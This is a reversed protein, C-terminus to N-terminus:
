GLYLKNLRQPDLGVDPKYRVKELAELGDAFRQALLYTIAEEYKATPDYSDVKIATHYQLLAQEYEGKALHSRGVTIHHLALPITPRNRIFNFKVTKTKLDPIESIALSFFILDLILISEFILILQLFHM